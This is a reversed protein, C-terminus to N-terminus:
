GRTERMLFGSGSTYANWTQFYYHHPNFLPFCYYLFHSRIYSASFNRATPTHTHTPPLAEQVSSGVSWSKGWQTISVAPVSNRPDSTALCHTAGDTIALALSGADPPLLPATLPRQSGGAGMESPGSLFTSTKVQEWWLGRLM